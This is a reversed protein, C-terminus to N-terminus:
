THYGQIWKNIMTKRILIAVLYIMTSIQIMKLNFDCFFSDLQMKPSDHNLFEHYVDWFIM